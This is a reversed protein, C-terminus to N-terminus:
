DMKFEDILSTDNKKFFELDVNKENDIHVRGITRAPVGGVISFDEVIGTVVAGACVLCHKGIHSGSTIVSSVGIFCCDGISTPKNEYPMKGGSLAWKVSDHTMIRVGTAISCNKGITLGGQAGIICFPGIWTNDGITPQGSIFTSDYITVNKGGLYSGKEKWEFLNEIFPNVRNYTGKTYDRLAMHLKRLQLWLEKLEDDMQVDDITM